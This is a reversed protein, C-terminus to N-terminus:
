GDARAASVETDAPPLTAEIVPALDLLVDAEPAYDDPVAVEVSAARDVTTFFTGGQGAVPLWSVGDLVLVTTTPDAGVPASVGCRLVIPPEGWAATAASPPSVERRVADALVQPASAVLDACVQETGQAPEHPAV